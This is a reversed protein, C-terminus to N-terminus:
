NGRKATAEMYNKMMFMNFQVIAFPLILAAYTDILGLTKVVMYAPIM